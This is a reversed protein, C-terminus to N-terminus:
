QMAKLQSFIPVDSLVQPMMGKFTRWHCSKLYHKRPLSFILLMIESQHIIISSLQKLIQPRKFLFRYGLTQDNQDKHKKGMLIAQVSPIGDKWVCTAYVHQMCIIVYVYYMDYGNWIYIYVVYKCCIDVSSYKTYIKLNMVISYAPQLGLSHCGRWTTPIAKFM